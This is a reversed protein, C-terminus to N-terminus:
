SRRIRRWFASWYDGGHELVETEVGQPRGALAWLLLVAVVYVAAGLPVNLCLSAIPGLPLLSQSLRIALV